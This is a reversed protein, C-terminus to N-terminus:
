IRFDHQRGQVRFRPLCFPYSIPRCIVPYRLHRIAQICLSYRPLTIARGRRHDNHLNNAQRPPPCCRSDSQFQQARILRLRHCNSRSTALCRQHFIVQICALIRNPTLVQGRRLLIHSPPYEAQHRLPCDLPPHQRGVVRCAALRTRLISVPM